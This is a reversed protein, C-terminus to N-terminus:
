GSRHLNDLVIQIAKDEPETPSVSRLTEHAELMMSYIAGSVDSWSLFDRAHHKATEVAIAAMVALPLTEDPFVDDDCGTEEVQFAEMLYPMHCADLGPLWYDAKIEEASIGELLDEMQEDMSIRQDCIDAIHAILSVAKAREVLDSSRMREKQEHTLAGSRWRNVLEALLPFEPSGVAGKALEVFTCYQGDQTDTADM